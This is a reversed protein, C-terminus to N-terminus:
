RLCGLGVIRPQFSAIQEVCPAVDPDVDFVQVEHGMQELVAAIYLIGLPPVINNGESIQVNVLSIRM